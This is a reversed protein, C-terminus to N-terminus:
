QAYKNDQEGWNMQATSFRVIENMKEEKDFIADREYVAGLLDPMANVEFIFLEDELICAIGLLLTLNADGGDEWDL